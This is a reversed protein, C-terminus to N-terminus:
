ATLRPTEVSFRGHRIVLNAEEISMSMGLSLTGRDVATLDTMAFLSDGDIVYGRHFSVHRVMWRRDNIMTDGEERDHVEYELVFDGAFVPSRGRIMPDHLNLTLLERLSLPRKWGSCCAKRAADEYRKFRGGTIFSVPLRYEDRFPDRRERLLAQRAEDGIIDLKHFLKGPTIDPSVVIELCRHIKMLPIQM